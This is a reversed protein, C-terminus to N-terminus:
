GYHYTAFYDAWAERILSEHEAPLKHQNTKYTRHENEVWSEIMPKVSDFDGLRLQSYISQLTEVPAATLDEYRIDVIRSADITKRQEHFADYMRRLCDVVYDEIGKNKPRQLAQVEDLGRWLRCTSPFISRPDRSIHIFKADPFEKALWGVRGTHTPSKIILPRQTSLSVALLFRRLATLWEQISEEDGGDFDLYNVDVPEDNPFAMRRYPSPLGLNLLAFEDEQPRDWGTAMNDIPRKGPLLWGGFKRFFWESLLFHHPSFCQYTSPSSLREDKVMLEHLLTTGSRWHGVIFVPPGQMEASELKKAFIIKHMAALVANFPTTATVGFALPFRTPHIRFGSNAILKFWTKPLMGHWFRPAYFPYNHFGRDSSKGSVPKTGQPSQSGSSSELGQSHAEGYSSSHDQPDSDSANPTEEM